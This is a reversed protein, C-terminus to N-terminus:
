HPQPCANNREAVFLLASFFCHGCRVRACSVYAAHPSTCPRFHLAPAPPLPLPFNFKSCVHERGHNVGSNAQFHGSRTDAAYLAFCFFLPWHAACDVVAEGQMRALQEANPPPGMGPFPFSAMFPSGAGGGGSGGGSAAAAMAAAMAPPFPMGPFPPFPFGAAGGAAPTGPPPLRFPPSFPPPGPGGGGGPRAGPVGVGFPLGMPFGHPLFAMPPSSRNREVKQATSPTAAAKSNTPPRPRPVQKADGEPGAQREGSPGAAEATAAASPSAGRRPNNDGGPVEMGCPSSTAGVGSSSREVRRGADPAKSLAAAAATGGGENDGAGGDGGDSGGAGRKAAIGEIRRQEAIFHAISVHMASRRQLLGASGGAVRDSAGGSSAHMMAMMASPDNFHAAAAAAAAHQQQGAMLRAIVAPSMMHPPPLAGGGGGGGGGLHPPMMWPPLPPRGGAFNVGPEFGGGSGMWNLRGMGPTHGHPFPSLERSGERSFQGSGSDDGGGGGRGRNKGSRVARGGSRLPWEPPPLGAGGVSGDGFFDAYVPPSPAAGYQGSYQGLDPLHPPAPVSPWRGTGIRGGAGRMRVRGPPLEEEPEAADYDPDVDDREARRRRRQLAVAAGAQSRGRRNGSRGGGRSSRGGGSRRRQVQDEEEEEEEHEQEEGGEDEEDKVMSAMNALDFLASAVMHEDDEEPVADQHGDMGAHDSGEEQNAMAQPM